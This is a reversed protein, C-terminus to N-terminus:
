PGFRPVYRSGPVVGAFPFDWVGAGVLSENAFEMGRFTEFCGCLLSSPVVQVGLLAVM